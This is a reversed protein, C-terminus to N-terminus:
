RIIQVPLRAASPTISGLLTRLFRKGSATPVEVIDNAQLAIDEARHKNIAKLDIIIEKKTSSGPEQRILRVRDSQTDPLTGGAMAIAQSVTIKEKLPLASPKVVNGVVYIQESELITIVDGPRVYPNSETDGRLTDNLKYSIIELVESGDKASDSAARDCMVPAASHVVQINGGAREAPGGAFTLLELLRARRQLQFRGPSNVAGIVAVPRSHYEKIFVDVQPNRMYKLYHAAIEKALESETRCAAQIEEKILPMRIVGNDEVRVADRSLQELKYIRIELVDGPGIRYRKDAASSTEDTSVQATARPSPQAAVVQVLVLSLAGLVCACAAVRRSTDSLRFWAEERNKM